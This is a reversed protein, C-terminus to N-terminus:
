AIKFAKQDVTVFIMEISVNLLRYFYITLFFTEKSCVNKNASLQLFDSSQRQRCILTRWKIEVQEWENM